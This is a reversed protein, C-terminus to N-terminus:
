DSQKKIKLYDQPSLSTVKKFSNFFPNYSSFGTKYALSEMTNTKLYGNEMLHISDKIRCNMRYEPFSIKSHYKFLYVIHSTPVGLKDAIYTPSAKPNRFIYEEKCLKDVEKSYSVIHHMIKEQLKLDQDNNKDHNLHLIWNSNTSEITQKNEEDQLNFKLIKKNLIPLGYLIEPSFLIKFYIFLWFVLLLVAMSKGSITSQSRVETYISALLTIAALVNIIFLYLTWNKVLRFHTSHVLVDKKFWINKSLLKFILILYFSIFLTILIFNTWKGFYFIFSGSLYPNTNIIFLFVIFVLHKFDKLNFTKSQFLLNQHYLYFSPAIILYFLSHPGKDPLLVDQLGLSYSGHVLFRFSIIIIILLLFANCFPNSKYSTIMLAITVMGIIGTFFFLFSEIM